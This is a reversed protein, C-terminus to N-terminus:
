HAVLLAIAAGVLVALARAGHFRHEPSSEFIITTSIHLLMGIALALARLLLPGTPDMGLLSGFGMGLPAAASFVILMTWARGSAMGGKRLVTALAIAMPLKHLLVGTLFPVDDAIRPEAFPVGEVFAHLCLSLLTAMPLPDGQHVHVHGHEIGRSFAELMVQLLFGALLWVGIAEGGEEYLEPLMHTVAVGLLFAGGFSLLLRMGRQDPRIREVVVGALLPVVFFLLALAYTSM